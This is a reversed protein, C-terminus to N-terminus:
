LRFGFLEAWPKLGPCFYSVEEQNQFRGLSCGANRLANLEVSHWAEEWIRIALILM